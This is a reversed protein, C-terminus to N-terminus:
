ENSDYEKNYLEQVMACNPCIYVDVTGNGLIGYEQYSFTNNWTMNNDCNYCKM